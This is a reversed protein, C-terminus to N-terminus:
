NCVGRFDIQSPQVIGALERCIATNESCNIVKFQQLSIKPAPRDLDIFYPKNLGQMKVPYLARLSLQQRHIQGDM